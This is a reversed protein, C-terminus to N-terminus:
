RAEEREPAEAASAAQQGSAQETTPAAETRRWREPVLGRALRGDPLRPWPLERGGTLGSPRLILVAAMVGAVILPRTGSPLTVELAGLALGTEAEGLFQNLFSIVGTGAVAAWLSGTGGVVLMALTVFTLDLAVQDTSISGLLHALQGGAFGAIAGSLTFAGIRARYVNIGTAAAAHGDERAARLRRGFRSRQYAFAVAMALLAGGTAMVLDTHQPIGTMTRVGPGVQEWNRLVNLTIMLVGFTAIGAALGSLRMLPIAVVFALVAGAATAVALGQLPSLHADAFVPFIDPMIATKQPPAITLLGSIFAGVAVFSVHGFSLVGSNGIFVYLAVVITLLVLAFRMQFQLGSSLTLSFASAIVVLLAPGLLPWVSRVHQMM